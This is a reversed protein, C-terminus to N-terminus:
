LFEFRLPSELRYYLFASFLKNKYIRQSTIYTHHTYNLTDCIGGLSENLIKEISLAYAQQVRGNPFCKEGALQRKSNEIRIKVLLCKSVHSVHWLYALCCWKCSLQLEMQLHLYRYLLLYRYLYLCLCLQSCSDVVNAISTSLAWIYSDSM